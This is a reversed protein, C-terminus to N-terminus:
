EYMGGELAEEAGQDDDVPGSYLVEALSEYEQFKEKYGMMNFMNAVGM